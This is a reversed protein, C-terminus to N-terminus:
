VGRLVGWGGGVNCLSPSCGEPDSARGLRRCRARPDLRGWTVEVGREGERGEQQQAWATNQAEPIMAGANENTLKQQLVSAPIEASTDESSERSWEGQLATYAAASGEERLFWNEIM